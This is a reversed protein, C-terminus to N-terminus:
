AQAYKPVIGESPGEYTPYALLRKRVLLNDSGPILFNKLIAFCIHLSLTWTDKDCPLFKFM